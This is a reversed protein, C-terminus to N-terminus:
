SFRVWFLWRYLTVGNGHAAPQIKCRYFDFTSQDIFCTAQSLIFLSHCAHHLVWYLVDTWGELTICQFVTLMALGFNDFNTIGENPGEWEDKGLKRLCQYEHDEDDNGSWCHYGGDNDTNCPVAEGSIESIKFKSFFFSFILTRHYIILVTFQLFRVSPIALHEM